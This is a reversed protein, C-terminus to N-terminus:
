WNLSAAKNIPPLPKEVNSDHAFPDAKKVATQAKPKFEPRFQARMSRSEQKRAKSQDGENHMQFGAEHINDDTLGAAYLQELTYTAAKYSNYQELHYIEAAVQMAKQEEKTMADLPTAIKGKWGSPLKFQNAVGGTGINRFLGFLYNEHSSASDAGPSKLSAGSYVSNDVTRIFEFGAEELLKMWQKGPNNKIQWATLTVLFAHDPYGRNSFTGNRMRSLFVEGYTKGYYLQEGKSNTIPHGSDGNNLAIAYKEDPSVKCNQIIDMACCGWYAGPIASGFRLFEM